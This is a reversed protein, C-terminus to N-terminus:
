LNESIKEIEEDTLSSNYANWSEEGWVEIHNGAGIFVCNKELRALKTLESPILIRGQADFSAETAAATMSRQYKRVDAKNSPLAMISEYKNQWDAQTYIALCGDMYRNVVVTSGLESRFKAPVAIRGKNDLKNLYTGLFM